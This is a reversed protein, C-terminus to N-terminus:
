KSLAVNEAAAGVSIEATDKWKELTILLFSAIVGGQATHCM